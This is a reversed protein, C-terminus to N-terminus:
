TGTRVNDIQKQFSPVWKAFSDLDGVQPRDRAAAEM